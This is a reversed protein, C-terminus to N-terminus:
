VSDLKVVASRKNWLETGLETVAFNLETLASITLEVQITEYKEVRM